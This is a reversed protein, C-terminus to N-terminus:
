FCLRLNVALKLAKMIIATAKNIQKKYRKIKRQIKSLYSLYAFLQM